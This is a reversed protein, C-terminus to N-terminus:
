NLGMLRLADAPSIDLKKYAKLTEQQDYSIRMHKSSLEKLDILMFSARPDGDRSQGVSGPNIVYRHGPKLGFIGFEDAVIGGRHTHGVFIYQQTTQELAQHCKVATDLYAWEQPNIPSSHVALWNESELILPRTQLWTRNDHSLLDVSKKLLSKNPERFHNFAVNGTLISDHNGIVTDYGRERIIQVVEDPNPGYGILDGLCLVYDPKIRDIERLVANTAELNAHLDSILAIRM